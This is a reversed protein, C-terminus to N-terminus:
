LIGVQAVVKFGVVGIGGLITVILLAVFIFWGYAFKQMRNFDKDFDDFSNRRM